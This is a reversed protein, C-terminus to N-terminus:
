AFGEQRLHEESQAAAKMTCTTQNMMTVGNHGNHFNRLFCVSANRLITTSWGSAKNLEMMGSFWAVKHERQELQEISNPRQLPTMPDDLIPLYQATSITELM